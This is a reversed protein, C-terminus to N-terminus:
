VDRKSDNNGELEQMKDLVENLNWATPFWGKERYDKIQDELWGNLKRWKTQLKDKEQQLQHILETQLYASSQAFKYDVIKYKPIRLTYTIYEVDNTIKLEENM